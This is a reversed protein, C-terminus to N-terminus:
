AAWSWAHHMPFMLDDRIAYGEVYTLESHREALRLANGFCNQAAMWRFQKLKPQPIYARGYALVFAYTTRHKWSANDNLGREARDLSRMWDVLPPRPSKPKKGM